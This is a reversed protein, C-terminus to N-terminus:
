DIGFVRTYECLQDQDDLKMKAEREKRRQEARTDLEIKYFDFMKKLEKQPVIVVDASLNCALEEFAEDATFHNRVKDNGDIVYTYLASGNRKRIEVLFQLTHDENCYVGITAGSTKHTFIVTKKM